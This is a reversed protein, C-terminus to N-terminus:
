FALLRSLMGLIVCSAPLCFAQSTYDFRVGCSIKRKRDVLCGSSCTDKYEVAKWGNLWCRGACTCKWLCKAGEREAM